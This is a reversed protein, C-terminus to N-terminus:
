LIDILGQVTDMEGVNIHTTQYGKEELILLVELMSMSDMIDTFSTAMTITEQRKIVENVADLIDDTKTM